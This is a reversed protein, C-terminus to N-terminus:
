GVGAWSHRMPEEQPIRSRSKGSSTKRVRKKVGRKSPIERLETTFPKLAREGVMRMLERANEPARVYVDNNFYAYVTTNPHARIHEAWPPEAQTYNHAAGGALGHFRIYILDGTVSLNMPMRGSSVSVFAARHKKLLGYVEDNYWSPHRFEIAHHFKKPLLHLFDELRSSDKKFNPGLQWLIPGTREKLPAISGFFKALAEKVDLLKKNHTIFRSGKIAYLFGDAAVKNWRRTMALTALRYFTANIEVTPFQTQYFELQRAHPVEEPYFHQGM